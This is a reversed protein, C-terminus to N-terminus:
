KYKRSEKIYLYYAEQIKKNSIKGVSERPIKIQKSYFYFFAILASFSYLAYDRYKINFNRQKKNASEIKINIQNQNLKKYLEKVNEKNIISFEGIFKNKNNYIYLVDNDDGSNAKFILIKYIENVNYNLLSAFEDETLVKRSFFYKYICYLIFLCCIRVFYKYSFYLFPMEERLKIKGIFVQEEKDNLLKNSIFKTLLKKKHNISLNKNNKIDNISQISTIDIKVTDIRDEIIKNGITEKNIINNEKNNRNDQAKFTFSKSINYIRFINRFNCTYAPKKNSIPKYFHIEKMSIKNLLSVKSDNGSISNYYFTFNYTKLFKCSKHCVTKM